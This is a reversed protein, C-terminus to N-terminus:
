GDSYRRRQYNCPGDPSHLSLLILRLSFHNEDGGILRIKVLRYNPDGHGCDPAIGVFPRVGCEGLERRSVIGAHV